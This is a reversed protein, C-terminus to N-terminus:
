DTARDLGLFHAVRPYFEDPCEHWFHGCCDMVVFDVQANALANRTAEAMPLGFPDDRGLMLLVPVQLAALEARLDIGVLNPYTLDSVAQSFEPMGGHADEPFTFTPDSFYAPLLPDVKEDGWESPHPIVGAQVLAEVRKSFGQQSIQIDKWTPPGGGFFILSAVREPYLIAYEMAVIGGFSHGMVHLRETGVAQRIAEVDAAYKELAYSAPLDSDAPQSSEGVGRQDYTIVACDPGALGEMDLMYNSTLGPGGNIAILVCGSDPNGAIRVHLSVDPTQVQFERMGARCATLALLLVALFSLLLYIMADSSGNRQACEVTRLAPSVITELRENRM